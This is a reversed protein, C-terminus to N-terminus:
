RAFYGNAQPESPSSSELSLSKTLFSKAVASGIKKRDTFAPLGLIFTCQLSNSVIAHQNSNGTFPVITFASNRDETNYIAVRARLSPPLDGCLGMDFYIEGWSKQTSTSEQVDSHYRHVPYNNKIAYSRLASYEQSLGERCGSCFYDEKVM